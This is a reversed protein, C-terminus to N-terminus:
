VLCRLTPDHISSPHNSQNQIKVELVHAIKWSEPKWKLNFGGLGYFGEGLNFDIRQLWSIDLALGRLGFWSATRTLDWHGASM